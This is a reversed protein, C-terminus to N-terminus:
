NHIIINKIKNRICEKYSSESHTQEFHSWILRLSDLIKNYEYIAPVPNELFYRRHINDISKCYNYVDESLSANLNNCNYLQVYCKSYLYMCAFEYTPLFKVDKADTLNKYNEFVNQLLYLITIIENTSVSLYIYNNHSKRQAFMLLEIVNLQDLIRSYDIYTQQLDSVTYMKLNELISNIVINYEYQSLCINRNTQINCMM